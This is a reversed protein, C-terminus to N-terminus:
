GPRSAATETRDRRNPKVRHGALWVGTIRTPDALVSVDALPDGAVTIVDADYGPRLQGSRPGQPGLTAPGTATAAEIAELPSFGCEVLLALERGHRGWSGPRGPGSVLLDSGMAVTVGAERALAVAATHRDVIARFKALAYAPASGADLIERPLTRTSVLIAGSERMAAATDADLWTGHEITRVGAALAARIGPLGHCHAAVVREALGAVEVIARVEADTFQQHIPDDLESLVGGSACIKIVKAGARLQERVARACDAPGDALRLEGGAAGFADVWPLPLAHVDGHGATPSLLAGAAYIRPGPVAGEAVARALHVGLGGLERVSTVGADLAARLDATARAARLAPPDVPLRGLDPV